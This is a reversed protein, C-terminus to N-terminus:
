LIQRKFAGGGGIEDHGAKHRGGLFVTSPNARSARAVSLYELARTPHAARPAALQAMSLNSNM